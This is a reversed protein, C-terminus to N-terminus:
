SYVKRYIRYCRGSAIPQVWRLTCLCNRWYSRRNSHSRTFPILSQENEYYVTIIKGLLHYGLDGTLSHRVTKNNKAIKFPIKESLLWPLIKETLRQVHRRVVSLHIIWGQVKAVEGVQLFHEDVEKYSVGLIRLMEAHDKSYTLTPEVTAVNTQM